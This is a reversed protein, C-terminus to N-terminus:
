GYKISKLIPFVEHNRDYTRSMAEEDRKDKVSSYSLKASMGSRINSIGANGLSLVTENSVFKVTTRTGQIMTPPMPAWSRGM